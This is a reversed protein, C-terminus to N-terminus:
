RLNDPIHGTKVLTGGTLNIEGASSELATTRTEWREPQADDDYYWVFHDFTFHSRVWLVCVAVFLLLSLASLLTFLRRKMPNECEQGRTRMAIHNCARM